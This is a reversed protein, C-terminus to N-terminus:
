FKPCKKINNFRSSIIKWNINKIFVDIYRKKDTGFDMFYAHEYVDLVVLPTVVSWIAGVDHADSGFVKINNNLNDYGIIAWGRVSIGVEKLDNMLNNLSGFQVMIDNMLNKSIIKKEEEDFSTINEFYLEHLNVGNIAYTEGLKISRLSSYTSNGDVYLKNDKSLRNLENSKEIYGLYLKYHEDLQRKSIGKFTTLDYKKPNIM